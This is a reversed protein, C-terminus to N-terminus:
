APALRERVNRTFEEIYDMLKNSAAAAASQRGSCIADALDAHLHACLPLDLVDEHNAYWFRRSLGHTLEMAGKAYSNRCADAIALNLERDFRMFTVADKSKAAERMGVSIREFDQREEDNSRKAALRAMLRELERRVLLLELQSVVCINSVVIGRRPLIEVLGERELKQLAERVPTRGIGLADVLAGESLAAGPALELMIIREEIEKYAMEARKMTVIIRARTENLCFVTRLGPSV